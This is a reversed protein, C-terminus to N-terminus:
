APKQFTQHDNEEVPEDEAGVDEIRDQLNEDRLGDHHANQAGEDEAQELTELNKQM